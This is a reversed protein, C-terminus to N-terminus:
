DFCGGLMIAWWGINFSRAVCFMFLNIDRAIASGIAMGGFMCGTIILIRCLKDINNM